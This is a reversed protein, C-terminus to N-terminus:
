RVDSQSAGNRSDPPALAWVVVALEAFLQDCDASVMSRGLRPVHPARSLSRERETPREVAGDLRLTRRSSGPLRAAPIISVPMPATTSCGRSGSWRTVAWANDRVKPFPRRALIPMSTSSVTLTGGELTIPTVNKSVAPRDRSRSPRRKSAVGEVEHPAIQPRGGTAPEAPRIRLAAPVTTTPNHRRVTSRSPFQSDASDAPSGQDLTDDTTLALPQSCRGLVAPRRHRMTWRVFKTSAMEPALESMLERHPEAGAFEALWTAQRDVRCPQTNSAFHDPWCRTASSARPRRWSSAWPPRVGSCGGPGEVAGHRSSRRWCWM